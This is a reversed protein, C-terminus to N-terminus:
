KDDYSSPSTSTQTEGRVERVRMKKPRGSRGQKIIAAESRVEQNDNIMLDQQLQEAITVGVVDDAEPNEWTTDQPQVQSENVLRQKKEAAWDREMWGRCTARLEEFSMEESSDNPNPYVAELNVFVREM